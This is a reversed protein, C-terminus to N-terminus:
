YEIVTFLNNAHRHIIQICVLILLVSPFKQLQHMHDGIGSREYYRVPMIEFSGISQQTASQQQIDRM